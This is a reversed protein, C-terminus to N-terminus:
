TWRSSRELDEVGHHLIVSRGKGFINFKKVQFLEERLLQDFYDDAINELPRHDGNLLQVYGLAMRLEALTQWDMAHGRPFLLCLAFCQKIRPSLDKYRKVWPDLHSSPYGGYLLSKMVSDENWVTLMNPLRSWDDGAAHQLSLYSGVAQIFLPSGDCKSAIEETIRLNEPDRIEEGGKSATKLLLALSDERTLEGLHIPRCTFNM